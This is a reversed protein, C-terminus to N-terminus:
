AGWREYDGIVGIASCSVDYSLLFGLLPDGQDMPLFASPIRYEARGSRDRRFNGPRGAWIPVQASPRDSVMSLTRFKLRIVIYYPKPM